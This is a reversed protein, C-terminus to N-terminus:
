DDASRSRSTKPGPHRALGGIILMLLRCAILATAGNVDRSPLLEVIDAGIIRCCGSLHEIILAVDRFSLGGPQPWGTGPALSPDLGDCDISLMVDGSTPLQDRLWTADYEYVDAARVIRHGRDIASDREPTRSGGIGRLGIQTVSQVSSLDSIRRAPSSRGDRVGDVEDRFDLHADITVLGFVHREALAQALMPPISDDGGVILPVVGAKVLPWLRDHARQRNGDSDGLVTAVDGLDVVPLSSAALLEGDLDFDHHGLKGVFAQSASRVAAPADALARQEDDVAYAVGHPVGLFAAGIENFGDAALPAPLGLFTDVWVTDRLDVADAHGV